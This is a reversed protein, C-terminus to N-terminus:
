LMMGYFHISPHLYLEVVRSRSVLYLHATLKMGLLKIAQSLIGPVWQSPPQTLELSLRSITSYLFIEQGQWSNFGSWGAWLRNM